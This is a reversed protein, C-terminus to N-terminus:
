TNQKMATATTIPGKNSIPYQRANITPPIKKSVRPKMNSLILVLYQCIRRVWPIQTPKPVQQREIGEIATTGLYKMLRLARAMAVDVIPLPNPAVRIGRINWRKVLCIPNPQATLHMPKRDKPMHRNARAIVFGRFFASFGAHCLLPKEQRQNMSREAKLSVGKMIYETPIKKLLRDKKM